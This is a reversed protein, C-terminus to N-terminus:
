IMIVHDGVDTFLRPFLELRSRLSGQGSYNNSVSFFKIIKKSRQICQNSWLCRFSITSGRRLIWTIIFKTLIKRLWIYYKYHCPFFLGEGGGEREPNGQNKMFKIHMINVVCRPIKLLTPFPDLSPPLCFGLRGWRQNKWFIWPDM